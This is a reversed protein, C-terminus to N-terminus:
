SYLSPFDSWVGKSRMRYFEKTLKPRRRHQKKALMLRRTSEFGNGKRELMKRTQWWMLFIQFDGGLMWNINKCWIKKFSLIFNFSMDCLCVHHICLIWCPKLTHYTELIDIFSPTVRGHHWLLTNNFSSVVWETAVGSQALHSPSAWVGLLPFNSDELVGLFESSSKLPWIEECKLARLTMSFTKFHLHGFHGRMLWKSM